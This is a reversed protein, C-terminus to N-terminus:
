GRGHENVLAALSQCWDESAEIARSVSSDAPAFLDEIVLDFPEGTYDRVFEVADTCQCTIDAGSVQFFQQAVQLHLPDSDIAIIETPQCFHRLPAVVTGAGLGLILVRRIRQPETFFVPLWLLDWVSGTFLKRPHWESHQVGNAFLQLRAGQRQLVYDVDDRQAQWIVAM